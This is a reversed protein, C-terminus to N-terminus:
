QLPRAARVARKADRLTVEKQMELRMADQYEKFSKILFAQSEDHRCNARWVLFPGRVCNLELRRHTRGLQKMLMGHWRTKEVVGRRMHSACCNARWVRFPGRIDNLELRRHMRGLQKLLVGHWEPAKVDKEPM